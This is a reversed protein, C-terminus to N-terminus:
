NRSRKLIEKFAKTTIPAGNEIMDHFNMKGPDGIGVVIPAGLSDIIGVTDGKLLNDPKANGEKDVSAEILNGNADISFDVKVEENGDSNSAVAVIGIIMIDPNEALEKMAIEGAGKGIDGCDDLMVVVPDCPTAAILKIIEQGSLPTPNGSSRSIVRANINHAGIEIAKQAVKDGDTVIIVKKKM